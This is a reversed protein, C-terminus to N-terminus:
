SSLIKAKGQTLGLYLDPVSWLLLVESRHHGLGTERVTKKMRDTFNLWLPLTKHLFFFWINPQNWLEVMRLSYLFYIWKKTTLSVEGSWVSKTLYVSLYMYIFVSLCQFVSAEKLATPAPCSGPSYLWALASNMQVVKGAGFRCLGKLWICLSFGNWAPWIGSIYALPM